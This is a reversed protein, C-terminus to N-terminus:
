KEIKRDLDALIDEKGEIDGGIIPNSHVIINSEKDKTALIVHKNPFFPVRSISTHTIAKYEYSNAGIKAETQYL